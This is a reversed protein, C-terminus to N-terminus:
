VDEITDGSIVKIFNGVRDVSPSRNDKSTFLNPNHVQFTAQSLTRQNKLPM